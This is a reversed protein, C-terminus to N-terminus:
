LTKPPVHRRHGKGLLHERNISRLKAVSVCGLGKSVMTVMSLETCTSFQEAFCKCTPVSYYKSEKTFICKVQLLTGKELSLMEPSFQSTSNETFTLAKAGWLRGVSVKERRRIMYKGMRLCRACGCSLLM